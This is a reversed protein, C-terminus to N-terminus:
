LVGCVLAANQTDSTICATYEPRDTWTSLVFIHYDNQKNM